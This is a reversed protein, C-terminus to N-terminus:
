ALTYPRQRQEGGRTSGDGRCVAAGGSGAQRCVRRVEGNLRRGLGRRGARARRVFGARSSRARQVMRFATSGVVWSWCGGARRICAAQQVVGVSCSVLRGAFRRQGSAHHTQVHSEKGSECTRGQGSGLM